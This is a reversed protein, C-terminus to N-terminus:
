LLQRTFVQLAIEKKIVALKVDGDQVKEEFLSNYKISILCHCVRWGLIFSIAASLFSESLYTISDQHWWHDTRRIIPFGQM